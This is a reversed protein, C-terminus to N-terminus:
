RANQRACFLSILATPRAAAANGDKLSERGTGAILIGMWQSRSLLKDNGSGGVIVDSRHGSQYGDTLPPLLAIKAATPAEM